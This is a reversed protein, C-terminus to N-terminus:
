YAAAGIIAGAFVLGGGTPNRVVVTVDMAPAATDGMLAVAVATFGFIENPLAGAQPLQSKNGVRVDDILLGAVGTTVLREVRFPIQPRGIVNVTAGAGITQSGLPLPFKRAHDYGQRVLQTAPRMPAAGRRVARRRRVAGVLEDGVLDDEGMLDDGVIDYESGVIDYPM